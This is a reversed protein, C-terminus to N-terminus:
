KLYKTFDDDFNYRTNKIKTTESQNLVFVERDSQLGNNIALLSESTEIDYTRNDLFLPLDIFEVLTM